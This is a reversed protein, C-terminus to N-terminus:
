RRFKQTEASSIGHLIGGDNEGGCLQRNISACGTVVGETVVGLTVVGASVVGGTVVGVTVVGVIVVGRAVVGV